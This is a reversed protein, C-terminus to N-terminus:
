GCASSTKNGLRWSIAGTGSKNGKKQPAPHMGTPESSPAIWLAIKVKLANARQLRMLIKWLVGREVWRKYRMFVAMWQGFHPPLARWRCGERLIYFLADLVQRDTITPKRGRPDREEKLIPEILAFQEDTLTQYNEM